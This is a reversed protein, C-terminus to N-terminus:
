IHFWSLRPSRNVLVGVFASLIFSVAVTMLVAAAGSGLLFVSVISVGAIVLPAHWAYVGGAFRGFYAFPELAKVGELSRVLLLLVWPVALQWAVLVNGRTAVFFCAALCSFTSVLALRKFSTGCFLGFTLFAFYLPVLHLSSGHLLQPGAQPVFFAVWFLFAVAGVILPARGNVLHLLLVFAQMFFLYLLFYLQPDAPQLAWMLLEVGSSPMPHANRILGLSALLSVAIKYFVSFAIWPVLLRIARNRLEGVVPRELGPRLLVGSVAFFALVCWGTLMQASQVFAWAESDFRGNPPLHAIIVGVMALFKYADAYNLRVTPTKM